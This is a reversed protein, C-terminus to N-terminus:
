PKEGGEEMHRSLFMAQGIVFVLMLGLGGFLKFNVWIDTSFSYAVWLNVAGMVAFFGTWSWNLRTWVPDPLQLQAGLMTRILNRRFLLAAGALVLAFLWYLM